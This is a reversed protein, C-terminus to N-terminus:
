EVRFWDYIAYGESEKMNPNVCFLGAKAGIWKGKKAKFPDGLQSFKINDHSYSFLCQGSTDATVRFFCADSDAPVSGTLRTAEDCREYKGECTRIFLSDNNKVFAIYAWETGMIVLGCREGNLFIHSEIKTTIM